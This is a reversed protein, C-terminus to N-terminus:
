GGSPRSRRFSRRDIGAAGSGVAPSPLVARQLFHGDGEVAPSQRGGSEHRRDRRGVTYRRRDRRRGRGGGGGSRGVGIGRRPAHGAASGAVARAGSGAARGVVWGAGSRRPGIWGAGIRGAGIRGGPQGGPIGADLLRLRAAVGASRAIAGSPRRGGEPGSGGLRNSSEGHRGSGGGGTRRERRRG